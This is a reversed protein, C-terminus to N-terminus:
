AAVTDLLRELRQRSIGLRVAVVEPDEGQDVAKRWRTEQEVRRRREEAAAVMRAVAANAQDAVDPWFVLRQGWPRRPTWECMGAVKGRDLWKRVLQDSVTLGVLTTAASAAMSVHTWGDGDEAELLDHRVATVYEGVDYEKRCGPCEWSRGARPDDLGGQRGQCKACPRRAAAVLSASPGRAAALECEVVIGYEPYSGVIRLWDQGRQQRVLARQLEARAPTKHRCRKLDRFRRVLREGCEFCAVGREPEQEDHLAHELGARLNRVQKTFALFDPGKGSQGNAMTDLQETLYRVAGAVTARPARPQTFWARYMDEWQALVALPPIPDNPRHVKAMDTSTYGRSTRLQDLRVTPGHLIAATGGPIPAAAVLRGDGGGAIAEVALAAYDSALETLDARVKGVCEACTDPQDNSAHNRGCILCHPATCPACGRGSAPCPQDDTTQTPCDDRHRTTVRQALTRDYHCAPPKRTESSSM